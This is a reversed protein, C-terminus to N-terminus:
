DEATRRDESVSPHTDKIIDILRDTTMPVPEAAGSDLTEEFCLRATDEVIINIDSYINLPLVGSEIM